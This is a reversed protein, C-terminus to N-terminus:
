NKIWKIKEGKKILDKNESISKIANYKVFILNLAFSADREWNSPKNKLLQDIVENMELKYDSLEYIDKLEDSDNIAKIISSYERNIDGLSKTGISPEFERLEKNLNKIIKNLSSFLLVRSEDSKLAAKQKKDNEIMKQNRDKRSGIAAVIVLIIIIGFFIGLFIWTGTNSGSKFVETPVNEKLM